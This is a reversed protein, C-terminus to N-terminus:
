YFNTKFTYDPLCPLVEEVEKLAFPHRTKHHIIMIVQDTTGTYSCISKAINDFVPLLHPATANMELFPWSIHSFGDDHKAVVQKLIDPLKNHQSEHIKYIARARQGEYM